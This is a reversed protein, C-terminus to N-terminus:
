GKGERGKGERPTSKLRLNHRIDLIVESGDHRPAGGSIHIDEMADRQTMANHQTGSRQMSSHQAAHATSNANSLIRAGWEMSCGKARCAMSGDREM